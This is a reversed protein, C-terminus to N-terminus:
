VNRNIKIDLVKQNCRIDGGINIILGSLRKSVNMFDIIGTQPVWLGAVGEVHPEYEKIQVPDLKLLGKLGNHEGREALNDLVPIERKDTAVVIKGCLDYPIDNEDCFTILQHYGNICNTAKLSGPKYYLQLRQQCM